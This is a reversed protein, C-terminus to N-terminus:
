EGFKDGSLQNVIKDGWGKPYFGKEVYRHFSSWEWDEVATVLGHKVPNFHIYDFHNQLDKTDRVTHEWFRRQWVTAEHKNLRSESREFQMGIEKRYTITFLRKIERIRISYNAEKEPLTILMHVHDPLLCIAVLEFPMRTKVQNMVIHLLKRATPNAFVPARNYTVFTFFYTAGELHNRLYEPM